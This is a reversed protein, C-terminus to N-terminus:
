SELVGQVYELALEGEVVRRCDDDADDVCGLSAVLEGDVYLGVWECTEPGGDVYCDFEREHDTVWDPVWRFVGGEGLTLRLASVMNRANVMRGEDPTQTAPDYSYGANEYYFRELATLTNM